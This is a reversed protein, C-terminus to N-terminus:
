TKFYDKNKINNFIQKAKNLNQEIGQGFYYQAALNFARTDKIEQYQFEREYKKLNVVDSFGLIIFLMTIVVIRM